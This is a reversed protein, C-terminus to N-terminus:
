HCCSQSRELYSIYCILPHHDLTWSNYQIIYYSKYKKCTCAYQLSLNPDENQAVGNDKPCFSPGHFWLQLSETPGEGEQLCGYSYCTCLTTSGDGAWDGSPGTLSCDQLGLIVGLSSNCRPFFSKTSVLPIAFLLPISGTVVFLIAPAFPLWQISVIICLM